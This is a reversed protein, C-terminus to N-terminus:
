RVATKMDAQIENASLARNYIRVEDIRGTFYETWVSNGGIRLAGTSSVISGSIAKSAVQTGNVYLRLTTGNYTSALHSWSNLPLATPGAVGLENSVFIYSNPRNTPSGAYLVYALEGSQEKMMVTSWDTPTVTPYVWAELTM